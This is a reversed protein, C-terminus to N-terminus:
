KAVFRAFHSQFPTLIAIKAASRCFDVLSQLSQERGWAGETVRKLQMLKNLLKNLVPGVSSMKQAFWNYKQNM